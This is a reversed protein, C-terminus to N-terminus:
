WESLCGSSDCMVDYANCMLCEVNCLMVCMAM